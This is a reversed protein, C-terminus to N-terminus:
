VVGVDAETVTEIEAFLKPTRQPEAPKPPTHEGPNMSNQLRCGPSRMAYRDNSPEALGQGQQCQRIDTRKATDGQASIDM